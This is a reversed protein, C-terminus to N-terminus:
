EVRIVVKGTQKRKGHEKKSETSELQQNPQPAPIDKERLMSITWYAFWGLCMFAVLITVDELLPAKVRMTVLSLLLWAAALVGLVKAKHEKM